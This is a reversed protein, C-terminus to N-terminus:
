LYITGWSCDCDYCYWDELRRETKADVLDALSSYETIDVSYDFRDANLRELIDLLCEYGAYWYETLRVTETAIDKDYYIVNGTVAQLAFYIDFEHKSFSSIDKSSLVKRIDRYALATNIEKEVSIEDLLVECDSSLIEEIIGEYFSDYFKSRKECYIDDWGRMEVACEIAQIALVGSDSDCVYSVEKVGRNRLELRVLEEVKELYDLSIYTDLMLGDESMIADVFKQAEIYNYLQEESVVELLCEYAFEASVEKQVCIALKKTIFDYVYSIDEELVTSMLEQMSVGSEKAYEIVRRAGHNM